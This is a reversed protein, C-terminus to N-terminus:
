FLFRLGVSASEGDGEKCNHERSLPQNASGRRMKSVSTSVHYEATAPDVWGRASWGPDWHHQLRLSKESRHNVGVM